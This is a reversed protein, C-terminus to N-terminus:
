GSEVVRKVASCRGDRERWDGVRGWGWEWGGCGGMGWGGVRWGEYLVSQTIWLERDPRRQERKRYLHVCAKSVMEEISDKNM